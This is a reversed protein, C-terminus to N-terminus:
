TPRSGRNMSSYSSRRRFTKSSSTGFRGRRPWTPGTRSRPASPSKKFTLELKTLWTDMTSIAVPIDMQQCLEALTADPKQAVLERVRAQRAATFQGKAGCLHTQPVLTGRERFHQRVRRVAAVCYGLAEAIQKTSKDQGYLAIIRARIGVPIAEM